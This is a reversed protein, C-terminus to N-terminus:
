KVILNAQLFFTMDELALLVTFAFKNKTRPLESKINTNSIEKCHYDVFHQMNQVPKWLNNRLHLYHYKM